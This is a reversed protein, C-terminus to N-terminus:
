RMPNESGTFCTKREVIYRMVQIIWNPQPPPRAPGVTRRARQIHVPKRNHPLLPLQLFPSFAQHLLFIGEMIAYRSVSRPHNLPSPPCRWDYPTLPAAATPDIPMPDPRAGQGKGPSRGPGQGGGYVVGCPGGGMASLSRQFEDRNQSSTM